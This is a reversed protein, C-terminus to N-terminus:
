LSEDYLYVGDHEDPDLPYRPYVFLLHEVRIPTYADLNTRWCHLMYARLVEEAQDIISM